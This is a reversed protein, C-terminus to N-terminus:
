CDPVPLDAAEASKIHDSHPLAEEARRAYQVGADLRAM